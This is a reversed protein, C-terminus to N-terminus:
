NRAARAALRRQLRERLTPPLDLESDSSDSAATGKSSAPQAIMDMDVSHAAMSQSQSLRVRKRPTTPQAKPPSEATLDVVPPSAATDDTVAADSPLALLQEEAELDVTEVTIGVGGSTVRPADCAACCAVGASNVLTCMECSWERLEKEEEEAEDAGSESNSAEAWCMAARLQAARAPGAGSRGDDCSGRMSGEGGDVEDRYVLNDDGGLDVGGDEEEDDSVGGATAWSMTEQVKTARLRSLHAWLGESM